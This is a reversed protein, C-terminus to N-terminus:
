NRQIQFICSAEGLRLYAYARNSYLKATMDEDKCNVKIGETYFYVANNYDGKLYM